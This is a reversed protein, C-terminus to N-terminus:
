GKGQDRRYGEAILPEGTQPVSEPWPHIKYDTFSNRCADMFNCAAAHNMPRLDYRPPLEEGKHIPIVTYLAVTGASREGNGHRAEMWQNLADYADWEPDADDGDENPGTPASTMGPKFVQGLACMAAYTDSAQGGHWETLSWYLGPILDCLACENGDGLYLWDETEGDYDRVANALAAINAILDEGEPPNITFLEAYILNYLRTIEDLPQKKM